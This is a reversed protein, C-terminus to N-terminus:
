LKPVSALWPSAIAITAARRTHGFPPLLKVRVLETETEPPMIRPLNSPNAFFLFVREVAVPVWQEFQVHHNM